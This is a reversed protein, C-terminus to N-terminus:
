RDRVYQCRFQIRFVPKTDVTEDIGQDVISDADGPSITRLGVGSQNNMLITTAHDYLEWRVLKPNLDKGNTGLGECDERTGAVCDITVAGSLRQVGAGTSPNWGTFGTDGGNIVGENGGTLTVAPLSQDRSYFGTHIEPAEALSTQTADWNATLINYITVTPDM